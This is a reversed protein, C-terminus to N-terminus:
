KKIFKSQITKGETTEIATYYIGTPLESINFTKGNLKGEAVKQGSASFIQINKPDKQTSFVLATNDTNVAFKLENNKGALHDNTGLTNSTNYVVNDIQVAVHESSPTFKFVLYSGATAPIPISENQIVGITTVAIPNGVPIFTSMDAPNSAVGIQLTGPGPSPSVLTTTFSLTKNGAPTEIQPTVLYSSGTSNNGAYAQIFRNNGDAAVIMRPPAPPFVNTMPAVIASWGAQPFTTTGTTFTDFNENISSVQANVTIATFLLSGLLLKLKM